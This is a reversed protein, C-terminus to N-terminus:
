SGFVTKAAPSKGKAKVPKQEYPGYVPEHPVGAMCLTQCTGVTWWTDNFFELPQHCNGCVANMDTELGDAKYDVWEINEYGREAAKHMGDHGMRKMCHVTMGGYAATTADCGRATMGRPKHKDCYRSIVPRRVTGLGNDVMEYECDECRSGLM